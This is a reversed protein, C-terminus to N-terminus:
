PWPRCTCPPTRRPTRGRSTGRPAHFHQLLDYFRRNHTGREAWESIINGAQHFARRAATRGHRRILQRHLASAAIVEEHGALNLQRAGM